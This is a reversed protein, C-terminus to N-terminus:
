ESGKPVERDLAEKSDATGATTPDVIVGWSVLLLLLFDVTQMVQEQTISLELGFLKAISFAAMVLIGILGSLTAKNKLRLKWNINKLKEM